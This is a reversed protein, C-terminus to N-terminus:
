NDDYNNNSIFCFWSRFFNVHLGLYVNVIVSYLIFICSHLHPLCRWKLRQCVPWNLCTAANNLLGVANPRRLFKELWGNTKCSMKYFFLMHIQCVLCFMLCSLQSIYPAFGPIIFMVQQSVTFMKVFGFFNAPKGWCCDVYIANMWIFRM